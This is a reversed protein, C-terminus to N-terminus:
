GKRQIHLVSLDGIAVERPSALWSETAARRRIEDQYPKPEGWTAYLKFKTNAIPKLDGAFIAQWAAASVGVASPEFASGIAVIGSERLMVKASAIDERVRDFAQGADVHVFRASRPAVHRTIQASPAKVIRPLADHFSLFTKEFAAQSLSQARYFAKTEPDAQDSAELDEFLDCVTLVEGPELNQGILVASKGRFVGLEVAGGPGQAQRQSELVWTFLAQDVPMFWGPIDEFTM